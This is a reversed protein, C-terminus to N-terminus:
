PTVVFIESELVSTYFGEFEWPFLCTKIRLEHRKKITLLLRREILTNKGQHRGVGFDM